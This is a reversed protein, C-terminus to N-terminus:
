PQPAFESQVPVRSRWRFMAFLDSLRHSFTAIIGSNAGSGEATIGSNNGSLKTGTVCRFIFTKLPNARDGTPHVRSEV